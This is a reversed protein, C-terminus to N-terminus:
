MMMMSVSISKSCPPEASARAMKWSAYLAWCCVGGGTSCSRLISYTCRKTAAGGEVGSVRWDCTVYVGASIENKHLVAGSALSRINGGRRLVDLEDAVVDALRAFQLGAVVQADAEDGITIVWRLVVSVHRAVKAERGVDVLDVAVERAQVGRSASIAGLRDGSAKRLCELHVPPLTRALHDHEDCVCWRVANAFVSITLRCM